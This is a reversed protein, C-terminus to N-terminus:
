LDSIGFFAQANTVNIRTRDADDLWPNEAV